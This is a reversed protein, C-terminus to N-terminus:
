QLEYTIVEGSHRRAVIKASDRSVLALEEYFKKNDMEIRLRGSVITWSFVPAAWPGNKSGVGMLVAGDRTFRMSEYREADVLKMNLGTVFDTTWVLDAAQAGVTFAFLLVAILLKQLNMTRDIRLM